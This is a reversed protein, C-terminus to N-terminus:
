TFFFFINNPELLNKIKNIIRPCRTFILGRNLSSPHPARLYIKFNELKDIKTKKEEYEETKEKDFM